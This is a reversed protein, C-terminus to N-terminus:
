SILKLLEGQEQEDMTFWDCRCPHYTSTDFTNRIQQIRSNGTEETMEKIFNKTEYSDKAKFDM